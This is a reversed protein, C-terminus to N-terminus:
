RHNSWHMYSCQRKFSSGLRDGWGNHTETIYDHAEYKVNM